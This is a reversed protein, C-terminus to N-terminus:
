IFLINKNKLFYPSIGRAFIAVKQRNTDWGNQQWYGTSQPHWCLIFTRTKDPIRATLILAQFYGANYPFNERNTEKKLHRYKKIQCYQTKILFKLTNLKIIQWSNNNFSWFDYNNIFYKKVWLFESVILLGLLQM